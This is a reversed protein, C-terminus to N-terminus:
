EEMEYIFGFHNWSTTNKYLEITGKPVYLASNNVNYFANTKFPKEIFSYVEKSRLGSGISTLGKGLIITNLPNESFSEEGIIKVNNPINLSALNCKYFAYRM